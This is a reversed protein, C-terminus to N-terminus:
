SPASRKGKQLLKRATDKSVSFSLGTPTTVKDIKNIIIQKTKPNFLFVVIDGVNLGMLKSAEAPITLQLSGGKISVSRVGMPILEESM